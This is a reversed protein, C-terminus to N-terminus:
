SEATKSNVVTIKYKISIISLRWLLNTLNNFQFQIEFYLTRLWGLGGPRRSIKRSAAILKKSGRRDNYM